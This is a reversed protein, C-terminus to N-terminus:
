NVKNENLMMILVRNNNYVGIKPQFVSPSMQHHVKEGLMWIGICTVSKHVTAYIKYNSFSITVKFSILREYYIHIKLAKFTYFDTSTIKSSV